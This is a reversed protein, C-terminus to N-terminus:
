RREGQGAAADGGSVAGAPLGWALARRLKEGVHDQPIPMATKSGAPTRPPPARKAHAVAPPATAPAGSKWVARGAIVGVVALLLGVGAAILVTPRRAAPKRADDPFVLRDSRKPYLFEPERGSEEEEDKVALPAASEPEDEPRTAAADRADGEGRLEELVTADALTEDPDACAPATEGLPAEAELAPTRRSPPEPQDDLLVYVNEESDNRRLGGRSSDAAQASSGDDRFPDEARASGPDLPGSDDSRLRLRECGSGPEDDPLRRVRDRRYSDDGKEAGRSSDDGRFDLEHDM